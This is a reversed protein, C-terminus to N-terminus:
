KDNSNQSILVGATTVQGQKFHISGGAYRGIWGLHQVLCCVQRHVEASQSVLM